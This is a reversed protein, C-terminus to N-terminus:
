ENIDHLMIAKGRTYLRLKNPVEATLEGDHQNLKYRWWENVNFHSVWTRHNNHYYFAVNCSLLLLPISMFLNTDGDIYGHMRRGSATLKQITCLQVISNQSQMCPYSIKYIDGDIQGGIRLSNRLSSGVVTCHQVIRNDPSFLKQTYNAYLITDLLLVLVCYLQMLSVEHSLCYLAQNSFYCFIQHHLLITTNNSHKKPTANRTKMRASTETCTTYTHAYVM